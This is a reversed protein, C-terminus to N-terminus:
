FCNQFRMHFHEEMQIVYFLGGQEKIMLLKLLSLAYKPNAKYGDFFHEADFM